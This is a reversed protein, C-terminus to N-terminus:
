KNKSLALYAYPMASNFTLSYLLNRADWDEEPEYVPYRKKYEKIYTGDSLKHRSARWNGTEYENHGYFSGADFVFAQGTRADVATNGKGTLVFATSKVLDHWEGDWIDGHVLCPKLVRGEAQLPLLLHPVVKQLTLNCLVDFEPWSLIPKALELVRGLHRTYLACWSDEWVDVAQVIKAHCTGMNFGFKGSPSVSKQHLEALGTALEVPDAPQEPTLSGLCLLSTAFPLAHNIKAQLLLQHENPVFSQVIRQTSGHLRRSQQVYRNVWRAFNQSYSTHRRITRNTNAGPMYSRCLLLLSLM